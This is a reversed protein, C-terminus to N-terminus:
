GSASLWCFWQDVVRNVFGRGKLSSLAKPSGNDMAVWRGQDFRLLLHTRAILPHAVRMDARLDSGVVM